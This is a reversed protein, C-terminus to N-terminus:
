FKGEEHQEREASQRKVYQFHKAFCFDRCPMWRIHVQLYCASHSSRRRSHLIRQLQLTLSCIEVKRSKMM